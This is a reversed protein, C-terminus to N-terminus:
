EVLLLLDNVSVSIKEIQAVVDFIEKYKNAESGVVTHIGHVRVLINVCMYSMDIRCRFM